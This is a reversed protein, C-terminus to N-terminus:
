KFALAAWVHLAILPMLLGSLGVHGIEWAKRLWPKKLIAVEPNWLGTLAVILFALAMGSVMAYGLAGAHVVFLLIAATGVFRHLSWHRRADATRGTLRAFFLAWQYLICGLLILGSTVSFPFAAAKPLWLRLSQGALLAALLVAFGALGVVLYRKSLPARLTVASAFATRLPALRPVAITM